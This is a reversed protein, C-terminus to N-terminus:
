WSNFYRGATNVVGLQVWWSYIFIYIPINWKRGFLHMSNLQKQELSIIVFTPFIQIIRMPDMQIKFCNLMHFLSKFIGINSNLNHLSSPMQHKWNGVATHVKQSTVNKALFLSGPMCEKCHGWNSWRNKGQRLNILFALESSFSVHYQMTEQLNCASVVSHIM